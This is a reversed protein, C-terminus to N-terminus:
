YQCTNDNTVEPLRIYVTIIFGEDSWYYSDLGKKALGEPLVRGIDITTTEQHRLRSPKCDDLRPVMVEGDLPLKAKDDDVPMEWDAAAMESGVLSSPSMTSPVDHKRSM